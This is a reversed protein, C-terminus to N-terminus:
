DVAQNSSDRPIDVVCTGGGGLSCLMRMAHSHSGGLSTDTSISSFLQSTEEPELHNGGTNTTKGNEVTEKEKTGLNLGERTNNPNDREEERRHWEGKIAAQTRDM